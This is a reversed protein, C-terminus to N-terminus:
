MKVNNHEPSKQLQQMHIPYSGRQIHSLMSLVKPLFYKGGTRSASLFYPIRIKEYLADKM